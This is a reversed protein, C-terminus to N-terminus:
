LVAASKTPGTACAEALLPRAAIWLVLAAVAIIGLTLFSASYGFRGAVYGGLAPSLAAGVGQLTMVSGLGANVHGTGALIRAVLGPVAVGLLGAGIGDLMQVPVLGWPGTVLAATMGRVPLAVLALVFVIWYGKDDAMRGALIAMPVMTIQAVVITAGTFASPDGDGHAVLSQGLLPLMAANGLHFLTLTAGLVILPKSRLLVGFGAEAEGDKPGAGRAARHDIRRPDIFFTAVLSLAAMAILVVFVAGLGFLYGFLGAAAAAAVNGGHNFAENRGLQHAFGQQHVLGLTIAAIAPEVAAAAMGIVAQSAAVTVFGPFYLTAVSGISIVVATAAIVARKAHTHDVFAGLPTTVVMGALGGITMVIGIAGPSWDKSQLFVGLFPGLGARVDAMFFNVANLGFLSQNM